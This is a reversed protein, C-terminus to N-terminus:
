KGSIGTLSVIRSQFDRYAPNGVEVIESLSFFQNTSPSERKALDLNLRHVNVITWCEVYGKQRAKQHSKEAEGLRNHINSFDTGGKVEIAIINRYSKRDLAEKIVIDPDSAFQIIVKRGAANKLVLERETAQKVAPKVITQILNFVSQISVTGRKVNNGGRLQPGLTLLTLDDLLDRSIRKVDIGDIL